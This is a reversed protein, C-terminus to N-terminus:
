LASASRLTTEFPAAWASSHMRVNGAVNTGPGLTCFAGIETHHGVLTGRGIVVHEGIATYAGVVVGPGIVAGEGVTVSPALHARHHILSIPEWGAARVRAVTERRDIEGTGMLVERGGRPGDELSGVPVGHITTGIREPDRTELLGAVSLGADRAFDAVEGAFTRSGVIRIEAAM